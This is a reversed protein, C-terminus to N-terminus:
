YMLVYIWIYYHIHVILEPSWMKRINWTIYIQHVALINQTKSKKSVFKRVNNIQLITFYDKPVILSKKGNISWVWYSLLKSHSLFFHQKKRFSKKRIKCGFNNVNSIWSNIFYVRKFNSLRWYIVSPQQNIPCFWGLTQHIIKKWIKKCFKKCM